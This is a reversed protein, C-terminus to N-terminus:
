KGSPAPGGSTPPPAVPDPVATAPNFINTPTGTRDFTPPPLPPQPPQGYGGGMM